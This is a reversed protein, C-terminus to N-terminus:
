SLNDVSGYSVERTEINLCYVYLNVYIHIYILCKQSSCEDVDCRHLLSLVM